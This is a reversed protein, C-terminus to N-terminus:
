GIRRIIFECEAVITNNTYVGDTDDITIALEVYQSSTLDLETIHAISMDGYNSGRSYNRQRGRLVATTGDVRLSSMITTRSGGGQTVGVTANISYRGTADVQVRSPNTSTSHTFGTDIHLQTGNWNIYSVTGNAGGVNQLTTQTLHAYPAQIAARLNAATIGKSSGAPDDTTDSVDVTYVLDDDALDTVVGLASLKSDPM